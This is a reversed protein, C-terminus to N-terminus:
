ARLHRAQQAHLDEIGGAQLASGHQQDVGGAQDAKVPPVTRVAQHFPVVLRSEVEM